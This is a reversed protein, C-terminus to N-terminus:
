IFYLIGIVSGIWLLAGILLRRDKYFRGAHLPITSGSYVLHLYRFMVYVAFPATFV